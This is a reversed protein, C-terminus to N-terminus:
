LTGWYRRRIEFRTGKEDEKDNSDRLYFVLDTPDMGYLKYLRNLVSLKSQTNTNTQVYVNDGIEDCKKFFGKILQFIFLYIMM